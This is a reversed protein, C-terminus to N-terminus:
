AAARRRVATLGAAAALVLAGVGLLSAAPHGADAALGGGGADVGGTPMAGTAATSGAGDKVARLELGGDPADLAVLTYVGGARVGVTSQTGPGSAGSAQLTVAWEQAPVEAYGTASGSGLDTALDPGGVVSADVADAGNVASVLRVKAQGAAPPTLDDDLVTARVDDGEGTAVVTRASGETVEVSRSLMPAADAEGVPLLAVSYLGVPLREYDSLDGFSAETLVEPDGGAFPTLRVQAKPTDPSLHGVRLWGTPGDSGEGAGGPTTAAGAAGTLAGTLVLLLAGLLAALATAPRTVLLKM